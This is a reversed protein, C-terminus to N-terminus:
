EMREQSASDMVFRMLNVVAEIMDERTCRGEKLAKQIQAIVPPGGPMVVDNGAHVADGGDVVIDMDGWDTVVVGKFGWEDRLLKRCLDYNGGAFTGNIRNFSSMITRVHSGRIMMEFPKLYIERAAREEVISNVADINKSIKGRRYTEQENLAFHKPCCTARNNEECGKVIALGCLGSVIPDESFYEFNRGGLLARQINAAPALWSDVLREDSEAGAAEGFAYALDTNFTSAVATGTPWAVGGVGAPGDKYWASHIGFSSIAPNVYGPNGTPHDDTTLDVGNEDKLTAPSGKGGGFPLGPGYGVCLATLQDDSFQNVFDYLSVRGDKADKLTAHAIEHLQPMTQAKATLTHINEATLPISVANKIEEAEGPYSIFHANEGHLFHLKEKNDPLVSLVNEYQASVLEEAVTLKGAVHTDRSSTGARLIYQGPELIYAAKEEDYSALRETPIVVTVTESAGPALLSTKAYGKLEQYPQDLKGAPASVYVELTEKGSFKGTNKVIASVKVDTGEASVSFDGITFSTYSLGFGFPYLPLVGYSDFYRYGAYIGEEYVSVPSMDFGVSGNKEKDLGYSEYTLISSPDDKNFSFHASAPHDKYDRVITSTLKGSPSLEGMLIDALATAGQEGPSPVYLLATINPYQEVWSLDVAGVTNIVLAVKKFNATVTEILAKESDLLTYDHEYRRDCEEGGSSRGLILLATDTEEAAKQALGDPLSTEEEPATYTGFWEYLAGSAVLGSFKKFMEARAKEAKDPDFGAFYFEELAPVPRLGREKLMPILQTANKNSSAGSGSGGIYLEFQGKGFVAVSEGKHFPLLGDNKLLIMSEGAIERALAVRAANTKFRNM